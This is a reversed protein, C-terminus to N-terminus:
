DQRRLVVLTIDDSQAVGRTHDAVAALIADQIGSAPLHRSDLIVKCLLEEGFMAEPDDEEVGPGVAETIGDTYMVIVEGPALDITAQQYVMDGMMGLLLGGTTLRELRLAAEREGPLVALRERESASDRLALREVQSLPDQDLAPKVRDGRCDNLGGGGRPQHALSRRQM